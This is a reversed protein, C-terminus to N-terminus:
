GLARDAERTKGHLEPLDLGTAGLFQCVVAMPLGVVNSYSGEIRTVFRSGLGQIAYAGAKDMPEGSAVYWSIEDPNLRAFWVRTVEVHARSGGPWEIAVGTLVDHARGSLTRLMESAEAPTSPKGLMVDDVLVVTDAGLVVSAPHRQTVVQAKTVAVRRAYERPPEDPYRREDIDAPDVDFSLGAATLLERRRASASALVLHM